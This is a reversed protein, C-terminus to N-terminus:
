VLAAWARAIALGIRDAEPGYRAAELPHRQPWDPQREALWGAFAVSWERVLKRDAEFHFQVGYAARGIRFSQNAAVPSSALRLAGPPLTFTDDHWQFIPFAAPVARFLPDARGEETLDVECWGFESAAGILNTGGFARALLQAGLCIGLVARDSLAFARMLALLEPFWPCDADALANQGGGLVVLGDYAQPARPLPMARQAAVTEVYAGAEELALAIQGPGTGDFNQVLLIRM